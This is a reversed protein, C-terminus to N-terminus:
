KKWTGIAWLQQKLTPQITYSILLNRFLFTKFFIWFVIASLAWHKLFFIIHMQAIHHYFTPTCKWNLVNVFHTKLTPRCLVGNETTPEAQQMFVWEGPPPSKPLLSLHKKKKKKQLILPLSIIELMFCFWRYSGKGFSFLICAIWM